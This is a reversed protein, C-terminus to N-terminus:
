NKDEMFRILGTMAENFPTAVGHIRGLEVVRGNIFGIETKRKKMIDQCMSSYNEYGSVSRTIEKQLTPELTVGEAAAVEICEEVIGERLAKLSTAAVERDPVRLIASLPNIVCNLTLKRWVEYDMRDTLRMELGCSAFADSIRVGTVSRPLVTEGIHRVAVNGPSIEAGTSVLGRIVQVRNGLISEALEENGLGNQLLLVTTDDRIREQNKEVVSELDCAKVTIILLTDEPLPALVTAAEVHFTREVAGSVLLGHDRVAAVHPERGVLLVTFRRSLMAGYYSGIAGAGLVVIKRFSSNKAM